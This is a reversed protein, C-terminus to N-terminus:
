KAPAGSQAPANTAATPEASTYSFTTVALTQGNADIVSAKWEGTQSPDLTKSSYTRWRAAGVELPVDGVVKGQFEWRHTVTQGALERLETFFLVRTQDNALTTIRDAPENDAVQTTFQARAVQAAATAPASEAAAQPAPATAPDAGYAPLSVALAAVLGLRKM